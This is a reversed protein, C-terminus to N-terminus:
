VNPASYLMTQKDSSRNSTGHKEMFSKVISHPNYWTVGTSRMFFLGGLAAPLTCALSAVPLLTTSHASGRFPPCPGDSAQLPQIKLVCFIVLVQSVFWYGWQILVLRRYSIILGMSQSLFYYYFIFLNRKKLRHMLHRQSFTSLWMNEVSSSCSLQM